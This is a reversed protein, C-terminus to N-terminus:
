SWWLVREPHSEQDSISDTLRDSGCLPGAVDRKAVILSFAAPACRARTIALGRHRRLDEPAM